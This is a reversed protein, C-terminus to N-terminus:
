AKNGLARLAPPFPVEFGGVGDAIPETGASPIDDVAGRPALQLRDFGRGAHRRLGYRPRHRQEGDHM